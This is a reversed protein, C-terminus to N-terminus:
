KPRSDAATKKMVSSDTKDITPKGLRGNGKKLDLRYFRGLVRLERPYWMRAHTAIHDM